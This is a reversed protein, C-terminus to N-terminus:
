TPLNLELGRKKNMITILISVIHPALWRLQDIFSDNGLRQSRCDFEACGWAFSCM